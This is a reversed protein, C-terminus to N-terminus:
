ALRYRQGKWFKGLNSKFSNLSACSIVYEPLSNWDHVAKQRFVSRLDLRCRSKFVKQSHGRTNNNPPFIFFNEPDLRDDMDNTIKFVHIM